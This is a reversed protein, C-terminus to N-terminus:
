GRFGRLDPIDARAPLTADVAHWPVRYVRIQGAESNLVAIGVGSSGALV